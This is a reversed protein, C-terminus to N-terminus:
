NRECANLNKEPFRGNRCVSKELAKIMIEGLVAHGDSNPFTDTHFDYRVDDVAGFTDVRVVEVGTSCEVEEIASETKDYMDETLRGARRAPIKSRRDAFRPAAGADPPGAVIVYRAGRDILARVGEAVTSAALGLHRRAEYMKIEGGDIATAAGVVDEYGAAVVYLADPPVRKSAHRDLFASIQEPLRHEKADASSPSLPPADAPISLAGRVAFNCGPPHDTVLHMSAALPVGLKQSLYEVAVKGDTARGTPAAKQDISHINGIDSLGDGFVYIGRFTPLECKKRLVRSDGVHKEEQKAVARSAQLLVLSALLALILNM